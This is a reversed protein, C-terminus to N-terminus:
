NLDAKLFTQHLSSIPPPSITFLLCYNLFHPICTLLEANRLTINLPFFFDISVSGRTKPLDVIFFLLIINGYLYTVDNQSQLYQSHCVIGILIHKLFVLVTSRYMQDVFIYRWRTLSLTNGTSLCPILAQWIEKIGPPRRDHYQWYPPMYLRQFPLFSM